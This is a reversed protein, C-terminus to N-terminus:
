FGIIFIIYFMILFDGCGDVVYITELEVLIGIDALKEQDSFTLMDAPMEAQELKQPVECFMENETPEVAWFVMLVMELDTPMDSPKGIELQKELVKTPKGAQASAKQDTLM